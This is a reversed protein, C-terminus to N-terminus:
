LVVGALLAAAIRYSTPDAADGLRALPGVVAYYLPPNIGASTAAAVPETSTSAVACDPTVTSDHRFCAPDGSALSAPVDVVRYGPALDLTAPDPRDGLVDGHAVAYARIVHAPEDPGGYRATGLSWTVLLAGV